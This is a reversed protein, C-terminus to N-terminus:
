LTWRFWLKHGQGSSIPSKIEKDDSRNYLVIADHVPTGFYIKSKKKRKKKLPPM